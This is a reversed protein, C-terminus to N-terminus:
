GRTQHLIEEELHGLNEDSAQVSRALGATLRAQWDSVPQAFTEYSSDSQPVSKVCCNNM